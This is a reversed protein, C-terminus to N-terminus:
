TRREGACLETVTDVCYNVCYLQVFILSIIDSSNYQIANVQVVWYLTWLTHTCDYCTLSCPARCRNRRAGMEAGAGSTQVNVDPSHPRLWIWRFMHKLLPFELSDDHVQAIIRRLSNGWVNPGLQVKKLIEMSSVGGGEAFPAVEWLANM